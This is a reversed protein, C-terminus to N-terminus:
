VVVEWLAGDLRGVVVWRIWVEVRLGGVDGRGVWGLVVCGM